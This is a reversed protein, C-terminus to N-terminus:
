IRYYPSEYNVVVRLSQNTEKENFDVSSWLQRFINKRELGDIEGCIDGVDLAYGISVVDKSSGLLAKGSNDKEKTELTVESDILTTKGIVGISSSIWEKSNYNKAMKMLYKESDGFVVEIM